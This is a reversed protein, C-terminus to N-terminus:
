SLRRLSSSERSSGDNWSGGGTGDFCRDRHRRFRTCALEVLTNKDLAGLLETLRTEADQRKGKVTEYRIQREGDPTRGIDIKIRWSKKGRLTINGRM